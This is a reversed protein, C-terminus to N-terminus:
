LFKLKNIDIRGGRSFSQRRDVGIYPYSQETQQRPRKGTVTVEPLLNPVWDSM